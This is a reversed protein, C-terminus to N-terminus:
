LHESEHCTNVSISSVGHHFNSKNSLQWSKSIPWHSCVQCICSSSISSYSQPNDKETEDGRQTDTLVRAKQQSRIEWNCCGACEQWGCVHMCACVWRCTWNLVDWYSASHAPDWLDEPIVREWSMIPTKKAKKSFVCIVKQERAFDCLSFIKYSTPHHCIAKAMNWIEYMDKLDNVSHCCVPWMWVSREWVWLLCQVCMWQARLLNIKTVRFTKFNKNV